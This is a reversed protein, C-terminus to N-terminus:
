LSTWLGGRASCQASASQGTWFPAYFLSVTVWDTGTELRCEGIAGSPCMQALEGEPDCEEAVEAESYGIGEFVICDGDLESEDCARLEMGPGVGSGCGMATVLWWWGCSSRM